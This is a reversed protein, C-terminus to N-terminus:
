TSFWVVNGDSWGEKPIDDPNKETNGAMFLVNDDEVDKENQSFKNKATEILDAYYEQRTLWLFLGFM